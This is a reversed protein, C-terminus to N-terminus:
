PKTLIALSSETKFRATHLTLWEDVAKATGPLAESTYDDIVIIAGPVLKPWIHRLSDKISEYYDGDLYSFCINHPIDTAALESFWGKHIQPIKLKAKKFQQMFLKRSIALEGVKFQEGAPSLDHTSKKPLGEFSDYVHYQGNADMVNMTRRIFLSTTGIYCGFEVVSGDPFKDLQTELNELIIRLENKDIQDSILPLNLLKPVVSKHM